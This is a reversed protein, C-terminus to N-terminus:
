IVLTHRMDLRSCSYFFNSFCKLWYVYIRLVLILQFIDRIYLAVWKLDLSM